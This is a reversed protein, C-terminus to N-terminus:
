KGINNYIDIHNQTISRADFLQEVRARSRNMLSETLEDNGILTDLAKRIAPADEPPVLMAADGVAEACGTDNTTVIALGAAMAELLVIPCNEASSTFVFYGATEILDKFQQSKNDIFGLFNVDVELDRALEKLTKLYPGDGVIDVSPHGDWDKLAHILYQVGKREFMRSVVLISGTRDADPNFRDVDIGNPIVMTKANPNAELLLSELHKSPCIIREANNTVLKWAPLLMKHMLKFRDPNYGPVDSGHATIVYPLGTFKKVCYALVGDPFIFHTHNIGYNGRWVKWLLYPLALVMYPIMEYFYCVSPNSRYCPVRSISISGMSEHRALAASGMTILDVPTGEKMLENTLGQVVKAGGGGLPPFEYSLMLVKVM